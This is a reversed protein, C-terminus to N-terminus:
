TNIYICITCVIHDSLLVCNSHMKGTPIDHRDAMLIINKFLYNATHITTQALTSETKPLNHGTTKRTTQFNKDTTNCDITM